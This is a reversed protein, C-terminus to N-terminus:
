TFSTCPRYTNAFRRNRDIKPSPSSSTTPRSSSAIWGGSTAARMRRLSRSTISPPPGTSNSSVTSCTSPGRSYMETFNGRRRSPPVTHPSAPTEVSTVSRLRATRRSSAWIRRM